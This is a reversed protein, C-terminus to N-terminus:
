VGYVFYSFSLIKFQFTLGLLVLDFYTLEIIQEMKQDMKQEM